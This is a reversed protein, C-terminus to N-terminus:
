ISKRLRRRASWLLARSYLRHFPLMLKVTTSLPNRKTSGTGAAVVASGFYLSTTASDEDSSSTCMLWSRTRGRYDALLIQETDRREVQWAAFAQAQNDAVLRITKDTSPKHVLWHLIIRELRFLPTTYFAEIFGPLSVTQPLTTRYCDTYAGDHKYRLLMSSTPLECPVILSM